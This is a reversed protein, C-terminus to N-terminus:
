SPLVPNDFGGAPLSADVGFSSWSINFLDDPNFEGLPQTPVPQSTSVMAASNALAQRVGQQYFLKANSFESAVIDFYHHGGSRTMRQLMRARTVITDFCDEIWAARQASDNNYCFSDLITAGRSTLTVAYNLVKWDLCTWEAMEKLTMKMVQTLYEKACTFCELILEIRTVSPTGGQLLNYLGIEHCYARTLMEHRM